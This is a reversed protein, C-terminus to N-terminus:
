MSAGRGYYGLTQRNEHWSGDGLCSVFNLQKRESRLRLARSAMLYAGHEPNFIEETRGLFFMAHPEERDHRRQHRNKEELRDGDSM